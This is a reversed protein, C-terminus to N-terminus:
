SQQVTMQSQSKVTAPKFRFHTLTFMEDKLIGDYDTKGDQGHRTPGLQYPDCRFCSFSFSHNMSYEPLIFNAQLGLHKRNKVNEPKILTVLALKHTKLDILKHFLMRFYECSLNLIIEDIFQAFILATETRKGKAANINSQRIDAPKSKDKFAQGQRGGVKTAVPASKATM